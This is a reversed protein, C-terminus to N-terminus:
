LRIPPEPDLLSQASPRAGARIACAILHEGALMAQLRNLVVQAPEDGVDLTVVSAGVDGGAFPALRLASPGVIEGVELPDRSRGLGADLLWIGAALAQDPAIELGCAAGGGMAGVMMGDASPAMELRPLGAFLDDDM